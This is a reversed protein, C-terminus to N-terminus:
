GARDGILKVAVAGACHLIREPVAPENGRVYLVHGGFFHSLAVRRHHLLLQPPGTESSISGEVFGLAPHHRCGFPVAVPRWGSRRRARLHAGLLSGSPAPLTLLQAGHPGFRKALWRSVAM